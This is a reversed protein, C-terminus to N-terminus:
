QGNELEGILQDLYFRAKKTDELGNKQWCRMLYELARDWHSVAVYGVDSPIKALMAKRIDLVEVGPLVQYHPPSNVMDITTNMTTIPTSQGNQTCIGIENVPEPKSIPPKQDSSADVRRTDARIKAIGFDDQGISGGNVMNRIRGGIWDWKAPLVAGGELYNVVANWTTYNRVLHDLFEDKVMVSEVEGKAQAAEFEWRSISEGVIDNSITDGVWYWDDPLIDDTAWARVSHWDANREVLYDLLEDKSM